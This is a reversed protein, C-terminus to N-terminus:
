RQREWYAMGDDPKFMTRPAGDEAQVAFTGSAPDFYLTDGNARHKTLTGAPPHAMFAHAGAVYAQEGGFQPFQAGHKEWHHQANDEGGSWVPVDRSPAGTASGALAPSPATNTGSPLPAGYLVALFVAIAAFAPIGVNKAMRSWDM